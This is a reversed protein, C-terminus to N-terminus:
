ISPRAEQVRSLFWALVERAFRCSTLLHLLDEPLGCFCSPNVHMGFRVLRDSTSPIGHFSLWSTDQVSRVFRWLRLSAWVQPWRVDIGLDRFKMLSRHDVHQSRSLFSYSLSTTLESIPLPAGSPRPIVWIGQEKRGRLDQWVRLLSAYFSPLKRIRYAPINDRFLFTLLLVSFFSM